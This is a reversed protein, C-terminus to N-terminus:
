SLHPGDVDWESSCRSCTCLWSYEKCREGRIQGVEHHRKIIEDDNNWWMFMCGTLKKPPAVM